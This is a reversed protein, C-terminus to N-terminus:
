AHWKDADSHSPSYRAKCHRETSLFLLEPIMPGDKKCFDLYTPPPPQPTHTTKPKKLSIILIIDIPVGRSDSEGQRFYKIPKIQTLQLLQNCRRTTGHPVSDAAKRQKVSSRTAGVLHKAKLPWNLKRGSGAGRKRSSALPTLLQFTARSWSHFEMLKKKWKSPLSSRKIGVKM